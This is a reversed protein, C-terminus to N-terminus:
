EQLHGYSILNASLHILGLDITLSQVVHLVSFLIDPIDPLVLNILELLFHLLRDTLELLEPLHLLPLFLVLLILLLQLLLHLLGLGLLLTLIQLLLQGYLLNLDVIDDTNLFVSHDPDHLLLNLIESVLLYLVYLDVHEVLAEIGGLLLHGIVLLGPQLLEEVMHVVHLPLPPLDDHIM